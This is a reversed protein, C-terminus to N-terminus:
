ILIKHIELIFLHRGWDILCIRYYLNQGAERALLTIFRIRRFRITKLNRIKLFPSRERITGMVNELPTEEANQSVGMQYIRICYGPGRRSKQSQAAQHVVQRNCDIRLEYFQELERLIGETRTTIKGSDVCIDLFLIDGNDLKQMYYTRHVKLRKEYITYYSVPIRVGGNDLLQAGGATFGPARVIHETRCEDLVWERCREPLLIDSDSCSLQGFRISVGDPSDDVQATGAEPNMVPRKPLFLTIAGEKTKLTAEELYQFGDYGRCMDGFVPATLAGDRGCGTLLCAWIVMIAFILKYKM